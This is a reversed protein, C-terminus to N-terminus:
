FECRLAYFTLFRRFRGCAKRRLFYPKKESHPFRIDNTKLGSLQVAASNHLTCSRPPKSSMNM